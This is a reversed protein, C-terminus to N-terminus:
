RPAFPVLMPVRRRYEAYASEGLETTLLREEIRAKRWLGFAILGAGLLAPWTAVTIATAFTAVLLGTYIPHRVLGYPGSDVVRHGEKLTISGSWLRGLHIRAWWAFVFGLITVGALAYAGDEGVFWLRRAELLISIRYYLLIAGAIIPLRYSLTDRVGISRRTQGSWAAAIIWSLGWCAWALLFVLRPGM